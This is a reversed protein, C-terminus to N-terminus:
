NGQPRYTCGHFDRGVRCLVEPPNRLLARLARAEIALLRDLGVRKLWGAVEDPDDTPVGAVELAARIAERLAQDEEVKRYPRQLWKKLLETAPELAPDVIGKELLKEGVQILGSALAAALLSIPDM